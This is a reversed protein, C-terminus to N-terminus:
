FSKPPNYNPKKKVNYLKQKLFINANLKAIEDTVHSTVSHEQCSMVVILSFRNYQNAIAGCKKFDFDLQCYLMRKLFLVHYKINICVALHNDTLMM